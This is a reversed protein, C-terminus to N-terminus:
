DLQWCRLKQDVGGSVLIPLSYHMALSTVFHTHADTIKRLCRQSNIDMVRISRDDGASIIYKGSPHLIVSRVWNDHYSFTGLCSQTKINWLRVTRDRSGSALYDNIKEVHKQKSSKAGSTSSESFSTKRPSSSSGVNAGESTSTASTVFAISEIVHEHGTLTALKLAKSDVGSSDMGGGGNQVVSYVFINTDNGASAMMQGDYERVAVCRVWDHHDHITHECFGTELDWFKVSKDRSASILMSSGTLTTDIGNSNNKQEGNMQNANGNKENNNDNTMLLYPSPLFKADSITHEHGRLTRVCTHTTFDWLKITLDSSTSVLHSGTPTFALSCVTNTHGKLTRVYEGSEHDWVKITGDESGSVAVTFTPHVAVCSIVGAHGKLEYNCPPRPLMRREGAGSGGMGMMVLGKKGDGNGGGHSSGNGNMMLGRNSRILKELEM